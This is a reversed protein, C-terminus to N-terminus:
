HGPANRTVYTVTNADKFVAVSITFLTTNWSYETSDTTEVKRISDPAGLMKIVDAVRVNTSRSLVTDVMGDTIYGVFRDGCTVRNREEFKLSDGVKECYSAVEATKKGAVDILEVIVTQQAQAAGTILALGLLLFPKMM